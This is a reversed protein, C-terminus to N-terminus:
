RFGYLEKTLPSSPVRVRSRQRSLPGALLKRPFLVSASPRMRDTQAAAQSELKILRAFQQWGEDFEHFLV